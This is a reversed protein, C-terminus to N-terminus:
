KDGNLTGVRGKSFTEVTWKKDVDGLRSVLGRGLLPLSLDPCGNMDDSINLSVLQPCPLPTKMSDNYWLTWRQFSMDELSNCLFHPRLAAPTFGAILQASIWRLDCHGHLFALLAVGTIKALGFSRM